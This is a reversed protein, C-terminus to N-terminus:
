GHAVEKQRGRMERHTTAHCPVCLWVVKLPMNYDPHHGEPTCDADCRSCREPRSVDGARIAQKLKQHAATVVAGHSSERYRRVAKGRKSKWGPDDKLWGHYRKRDYVRRCERCQRDLGDRRFADRRFHDVTKTQGCVQCKKSMTVDGFHRERPAKGVHRSSEAGLPPLEIEHSTVDAVV